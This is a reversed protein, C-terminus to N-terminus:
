ADEGEAAAAVDEEGQTDFTFSGTDNRNFGSTNGAAILRAVEALADEIDSSTKGRLTISTTLM